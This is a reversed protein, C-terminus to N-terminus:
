DGTISLDNVVVGEADANVIIIEDLGAQQTPPQPTLLIFTLQQPSGCLAITVPGDEAPYWGWYCDIARDGSANMAQILGERFVKEVGSGGALEQAAPWWDRFFQRELHREEAVNVAIGFEVVIELMSSNSQLSALFADRSPGNCLEDVRELNGKTVIGFLGPM